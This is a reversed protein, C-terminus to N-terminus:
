KKKPSLSNIKTMLDGYCDWVIADNDDLSIFEGHAKETEWQLISIAQIIASRERTSIQYELNNMRHQLTNIGLNIDGDTVAKITNYYQMARQEIYEQDLKQKRIYEKHKQLKNILRRNKQETTEKIM